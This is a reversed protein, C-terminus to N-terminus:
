DIAFRWILSALWLGGGAMQLGLPWGKATQFDSEMYQGLRGLAYLGFGAGATLSWVPGGQLGDAVRSVALLLAVPVFVRDMWRMRQFALIVRNM